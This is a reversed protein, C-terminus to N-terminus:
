VELEAAAAEIEPEEAAVVVDYRHEVLKRVIAKGIGTSAGTVLALSRAHARHETSM